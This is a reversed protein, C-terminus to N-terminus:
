VPAYFVHFYAQQSPNASSNGKAEDGSMPHPIGLFKYPACRYVVTIPRSSTYGGVAKHTNYGTELVQELNTIPTATNQLTVGFNGATTSVTDSSPYLTAKIKAGVVCYHDYLVGIFQDFGMPQHGVGTINPDYMGNASYVHVGPAGIGPNINDEEM